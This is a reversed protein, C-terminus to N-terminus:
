KEESSSATTPLENAAMPHDLAERARRMAGGDSFRRHAIDFLARELREIYAQVPPTAEERLIRDINM